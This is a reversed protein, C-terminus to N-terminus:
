FFGLIPICQKQKSWHYDHFADALIILFSLAIKLIRRKSKLSLEYTEENFYKKILLINRFFLLCSVFCDFYAHLSSYYPYYLNINFIEEIMISYYVYYSLYNYFIAGSFITMFYYCYM